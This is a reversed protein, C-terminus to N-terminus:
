MRCSDRRTGLTVLLSLVDPRGWRVGVGWIPNPVGGTRSHVTIWVTSGCNQLSGGDSSMVEWM